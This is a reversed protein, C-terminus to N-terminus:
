TSSSRMEIVTETLRRILMPVLGWAFPLWLPMGLVTRTSYTWAGGSICVLEALTGLLMGFILYCFDGKKGNFKFVALICLVLLSSLLFVDTHLFYILATGIVFCISYVALKMVPKM